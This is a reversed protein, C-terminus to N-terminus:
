KGSAPAGRVLNRPLVYYDRSPRTATPLCLSPEPPTRHPRAVSAATHPPASYGPTPEAGPLFPPPPVRPIRCLTHSKAPTSFRAGGTFFSPLEIHAASEQQVRRPM